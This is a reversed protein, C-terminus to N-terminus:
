IINPSCYPDNFEDNQLKRFEGILEDRKRGFIRKLVRIEFLKM